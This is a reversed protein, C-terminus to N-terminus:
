ESKPAAVGSIPRAYASRRVDATEGPYRAPETASADDDTWRHTEAPSRRDRQRARPMSGSAPSAKKTLAAVKPIWEAHTKAIKNAAAASVFQARAHLRGLNATSRTRSATSTRARSRASALSGRVRRVSSCRRLLGARHHLRASGCRDSRRASRQLAAPM